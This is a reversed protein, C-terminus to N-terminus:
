WRWETDFVCVVPGAIRIDRIIDQDRNMQIHLVGGQSRVQMSIHGHLGEWQAWAIVAAVAGTGCALTLNEVGREYTTINMVGDAGIDIFNINAGGPALANHYRLRRGENFAEEETVKSRQVYHPAGTELLLGDMIYVGIGAEPFAIEVDDDSIFRGHYKRGCCIFEAEAACYNMRRAYHMACRAGNACMIGGSGDSNIYILEFDADEHDTIWIVGDAGIGYYRHTMLRIDEISPTHEFSRLDGLVFDNGAGHYKSLAIAM